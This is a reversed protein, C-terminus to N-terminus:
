VKVRIDPGAGVSDLWTLPFDGRVESVQGTLNECTGGGSGRQERRKRRLGEGESSRLGRLGGHQQELGHEM